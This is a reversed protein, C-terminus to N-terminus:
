GPQSVPNEVCCLPKQLSCKRERAANGWPDGPPSSAAGPGVSLGLVSGLCLFGCHSTLSSVLACPIFEGFEQCEGSYELGVSICRHTETHVDSVCQNITLAIQREYVCM